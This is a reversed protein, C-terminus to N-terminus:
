TDLMETPGDLAAVYSRREGLPCDGLPIEGVEVAEGYVVGFDRLGLGLPEIEPRAVPCWRLTELALGLFIGSSCFGPSLICPNKM